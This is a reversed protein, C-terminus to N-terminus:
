VSYRWGSPAASDSHRSLVCSVRAVPAPVSQSSSLASCIRSVQVVRSRRGPSVSSGSTSASILASSPSGPARSERFPVPGAEIAEASPTSRSGHAAPAVECGALRVALAQGRDDLADGRPQADVLIQDRHVERPPLAAVPAALALLDLLVARLDRGAHAVAQRDARRDREPQLVLVVVVGVPAHAHGDPLDVLLDLAHRQQAGAVGVQRARLLELEVVHPRDQLARARSLRGRAHRRGRDRARQDRLETDGHVRVRDGDAVDLGRWGLIARRDVPVRDLGRRHPDGVRGRLRPHDGRSSTALPDSSLRPPIKSTRALPSGIPRPACTCHSRRRSPRIACAIRAILATLPTSIPGAKSFARLGPESTWSWSSGAESHLPRGHSRRVFRAPPRSAPMVLPSSSITRPARFGIEVM